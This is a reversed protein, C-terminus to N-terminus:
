DLENAEPVHFEAKLGAPPLDLKLQYAQKGIRHFQLLEEEAWRAREIDGTAIYHARLAELTEQYERRAAILREVMQFDAKKQDKPVDKAPPTSQGLLPLTAALLVGAAAVTRPGRSMPM